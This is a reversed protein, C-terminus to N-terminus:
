KKLQSAAPQQETRKTRLYDVHILVYAIVPMFIDVFISSVMMFSGSGDYNWKTLTMVVALASAVAWLLFGSDMKSIILVLLGSVMCMKVGIFFADAFGQGIPWLMFAGGVALAM